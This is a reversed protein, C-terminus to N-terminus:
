RLDVGQSEMVYSCADAVEDPRWLYRTSGHRPWPKQNERILGAERLRRTCWAKFTSMVREPTSEACVVLHVHNTRVNLAQLAWRRHVCVDLIAQRVTERHPSGLFFPEQLMASQAEIHLGPHESRIASESTRDHRDTWGRGDGPLWTGFCRFTIFFALPADTSARDFQGPM